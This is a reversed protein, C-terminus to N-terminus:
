ITGRNRATTWGRLRAPLSMGRAEMKPHCLMLGQSMRAFRAPVKCAPVLPVCCDAKAEPSREPAAHQAWLEWLVLQQRLDECWEPQERLGHALEEADDTALEGEFLSGLLEHYRELRM